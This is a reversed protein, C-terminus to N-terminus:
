ACATIPPAPRPRSPARAPATAREVAASARRLEAYLEDITRSQEIRELGDNFVSAREIAAASPPPAWAPYRFRRRVGPAHLALRIPPEILAGDIAADTQDAVYADRAAIVRRLARRGRAGLDLTGAISAEVRAVRARRSRIVHSAPFTRALEHGLEAAFRRALPHQLANSTALFHLLAALDDVFIEARRALDLADLGVWRDRARMPQPEPEDQRVGFVPGGFVTPGELDLARGCATLNNDIYGWSLGAAFSRELTVLGRELAVELAAIVSRPTCASPAVTRSPDLHREVAYAVEAIARHAAELQHLAWTFNSLRAFGAPKVSIAQFRLDIPAIEGPPLGVKVQARAGRPLPRMLLGECPVITDALGCAEAYRSALYERVAASPFLHGTAHRLDDDVRWNAALQTRGVGKLYHGDLHVGRGAGLRGRSVGEPLLQFDTFAIREARPAFFAGIGGLDVEVNWRAHERALPTFTSTRVPVPIAWPVDAAPDIRM